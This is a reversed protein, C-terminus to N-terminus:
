EDGRQDGQEDDGENREERHPHAGRGQHHGPQAPVGRAELAVGGEEADAEGGSLGLHHHIVGDAAPDDSIQNQRAIHAQGGREGGQHDREHLGGRRRPQQHEHTQRDEVTWHRAIATYRTQGDGLDEFTFMKQRIGWDAVAPQRVAGAHGGMLMISDRSCRSWYRTVADGYIQADTQGTYRGRLDDVAKLGHKEVLPILAPTVVLADKAGGRTRM